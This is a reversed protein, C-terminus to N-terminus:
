HTSWTVGGDHSHVGAQIAKADITRGSGVQARMVARRLAPSNAAILKRYACLDSVGDNDTWGAFAFAGAASIVVKVSGAQLAAELRKLASEVTKPKIQTYCPM